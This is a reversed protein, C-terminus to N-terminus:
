EKCNSCTLLTDSNQSVPLKEHQLFWRQFADSRSEAEWVVEQITKGMIDELPMLENAQTSMKEVGESEWCQLIEMIIFEMAAPLLVTASVQMIKSNRFLLPSM